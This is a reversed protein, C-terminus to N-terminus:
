RASGVFSRRGTAPTFSSFFQKDALLLYAPPGADAQIDFSTPKLDRIRHCAIAQSALGLYVFGMAGNELGNTLSM